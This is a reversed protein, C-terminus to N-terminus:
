TVRRRHLRQLRPCFPPRIRPIQLLFPATSVFAFVLVNDFADSRALEVLELGKSVNLVAARCLLLFRPFRQEGPHFM